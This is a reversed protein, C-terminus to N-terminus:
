VSGLGVNLVLSLMRWELIIAAVTPSVALTHRVSGHGATPWNAHLVSVRHSGMNRGSAPDVAGSPPKCLAPLTSSTLPKHPSGFTYVDGPGEGGRGEGGKGEGGYMPHM